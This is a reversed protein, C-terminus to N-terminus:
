GCLYSNTAIQDAPSDLFHVLGRLPDGDVFLDAMQDLIFFFGRCRICPLALQSHELCEASVSILLPLGTLWSMRFQHPNWLHVHSDIIPLDM